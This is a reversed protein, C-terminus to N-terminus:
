LILQNSSHVGSLCAIPDCAHDRKLVAPALGLMMTSHLNRYLFSCRVEELKVLWRGRKDPRTSEVVAETNNLVPKNVLDILTVRDGKVMGKGEAERKQSQKKVIALTRKESAKKVARMAPAPPPPPPPTPTHPVPSTATTPTPPQPETDPSLTIKGGEYGSGARASAGADVDADAGVGGGREEEMEEEGDVDSEDTDDEVHLRPLDTRPNFTRGGGEDGGERVAGSATTATAIFAARLTDFEAFVAACERCYNLNGKTPPSTMLIAASNM